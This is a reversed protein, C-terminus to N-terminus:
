WKMCECTDYVPEPVQGSVYYGKPKDFVPKGRFVLKARSLAHFVNKVGAPIHNKSVVAVIEKQTRGPHTIIYEIIEVMVDRFYSLGNLAPSNMLTFFNDNNLIIGLRETCDNQINM